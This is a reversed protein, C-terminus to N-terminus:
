GQTKEWLRRAARIDDIQSESLSSAFGPKAIDGRDWQFLIIMAPLQMEAPMPLILNLFKEWIVREPYFNLTFSGTPGLYECPQKVSDMFKNISGIAGTGAMLPGKARATLTTGLLVLAIIQFM